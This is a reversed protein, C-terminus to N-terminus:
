FICFLNFIPRLITMYFVELNSKFKKKQFEQFSVKHPVIQAVKEPSMGAAKLEAEAEARSKGRMLAETQALCNALM